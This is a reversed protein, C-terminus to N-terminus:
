DAVEVFPLDIFSPVDTTPVEVGHETVEVRDHGVSSVYVPTPGAYDDALKILTVSIAEVDIVPEEVPPATEVVATSKEEVAADPTKISSDKSKEAVCM